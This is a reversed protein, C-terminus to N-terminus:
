YDGIVEMMDKKQGLHAMDMEIEVSQGYRDKRIGVIKGMIMCCVKKGVKANDLGEIPIKKNYDNSSIHITPKSKEVVPMAQKRAM